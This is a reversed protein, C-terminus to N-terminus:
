KKEIARKEEVAHLARLSLAKNPTRSLATILVSRAEDFHGALLLMEGLMEYSPRPPNPPGFGFALDAEKTAAERMLALADSTNGEEFLLRAELQMLQITSLVRAEYDAPADRDDWFADIAHKQIQASEFAARAAAAQGRALRAAPTPANRNLAALAAERDQEMWIPHNYTMAEGWYALAFDPDLSQAERFDQAASDYEFNHLQALGHLFAQQAVSSGSNELAVQGVDSLDIAPQALAFHLPLLGFLLVFRVHSPFQVRIGSCHLFSVKQLFLPHDFHSIALLDLAKNVQSLGDCM